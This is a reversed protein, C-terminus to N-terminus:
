VHYICAELIFSFTSTTYGILVVFLNIVWLIGRIRWSRLNAKKQKANHNKGSAGRPNSAKLAGALARTRAMEDKCKIEEEVAPLCSPCVPPYRLQLSATYDPLAAVRSDYSPDDPAPLYNSLLNVLLTQNTQCTHCFFRTNNSSHVSPLHNRDPSGTLSTLQHVTM